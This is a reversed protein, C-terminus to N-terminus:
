DGYAAVVDFQSKSEGCRAAALTRIWEFSAAKLM